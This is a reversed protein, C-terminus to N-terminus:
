EEKEKVPSYYERAWEKQVQRQPSNWRILDVLLKPWNVPVGRSDALRVLKRLQHFFFGNHTDCASDLLARLKVDQNEPRPGEQFVRRLTWGFNTQVRLNVDENSLRAKTLTYLTAVAFWIDEQSRLVGPPLTKYFIGLSGGRSERLLNGANRKLIAKEAKPLTDLEDFYAAVKEELDLKKSQTM